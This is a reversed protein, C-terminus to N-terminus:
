VVYEEVAEVSFPSRSRLLGVGVGPALERTRCCGGSSEGEELPPLSVELEAGLTSIKLDKRTLM